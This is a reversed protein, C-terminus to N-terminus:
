RSQWPSIYGVLLRPLLFVALLACLLALWLMESVFLIVACILLSSTLVGEVIRRSSGDIRRSLRDM